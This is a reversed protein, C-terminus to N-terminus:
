NNDKHLKDLEENAKALMVKLMINEQILDATLDQYGRLVGDMPVEHEAM